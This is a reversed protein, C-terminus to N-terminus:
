NNVFIIVPCEHTTARVVTIVVNPDHANTVKDVEIWCYIFAGIKGVIKLGFTSRNATSPYACADIGCCTLNTAIIFIEIRGIGTQRPGLCPSLM